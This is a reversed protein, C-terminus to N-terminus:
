HSRGNRVEQAILKVVWFDPQNSYYGGDHHDTVDGDKSESSGAVIYGGDSTLQVSYAVDDQKWWRIRGNFLVPPM